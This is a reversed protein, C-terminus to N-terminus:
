FTPYLSRIARIDRWAFSPFPSNWHASSVKREVESDGTMHKTLTKGKRATTLDCDALIEEQSHEACGASLV